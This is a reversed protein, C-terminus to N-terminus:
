FEYVVQEGDPAVYAFRDAVPPRNKAKCTFTVTVRREEEMLEQLARFGSQYRNKGITGKTKDVVGPSKLRVSYTSDPDRGDWLIVSERYVQNLWATTAVRSGKKCGESVLRDIRVEEVPRYRHVACSTLSLAVSLAAWLVM